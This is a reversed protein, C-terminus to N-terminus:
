CVRRPYIERGHEGTFVMKKFASTSFNFNNNFVMRGFPLLSKLGSTDIYIKEAGGTKERLAYILELASTGDFDGSLRLYVARGKQRSNIRFNDAM